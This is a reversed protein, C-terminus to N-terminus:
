IKIHFKCDFFGTVALVRGDFRAVIDAPLPTSQPRWHVEGYHGPNVPGLVEFHEGRFVVKSADANALTYRGLNMTPAVGPSACLAPLALGVLLLSHM